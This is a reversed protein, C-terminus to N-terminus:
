EQIKSDGTTTENTHNTLIYDIIKETEDPYDVKIIRDDAIWDKIKGINKKKLKKIMPVRMEALAAANCQQEYQGKMPIVMLKKGLFLAEASAEFGAGCLIGSCNAFSKLFKENDVPRIGVNKYSLVRQNHKSFVQWKIGKIQTLVNLIKQDDYSPLYVIYHGQNTTRLNRIEQRIIPTFIDTDYSQFHFGYAKDVPAYKKLILKGLLNNKKPKPAFENLVACQHSLGICLVGKSKAAWAAVPEFDSIILDYDEVPLNKIENYFRKSKSKLYTKQYDIGGNKGFIYSLGKLNYKVEHPLKLDAQIGSILIDVEGKRKLIPIVDKARSLHGNGTGQIAYLIKM